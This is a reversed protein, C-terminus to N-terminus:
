NAPIYLGSIKSMISLQSTQRFNGFWHNWEQSITLQNAPIKWFAPERESQHNAPKSSNNLASTGISVSLNVPKSSNNL